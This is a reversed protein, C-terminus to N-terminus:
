SRLEESEPFAIETIMSPLVGKTTSTCANATAVCKPEGLLNLLPISSSRRFRVAAM